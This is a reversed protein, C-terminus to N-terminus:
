DIDGANEEMNPIRPVSSSNKKMSWLFDEVKIVSM